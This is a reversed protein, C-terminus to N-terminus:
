FLWDLFDKKSVDKWQSTVVKNREKEMNTQDTILNLIEETFFTRFVSVPTQNNLISQPLAVMRSMAKM